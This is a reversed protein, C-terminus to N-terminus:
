VTPVVLVLRALPVPCCAALSPRAPSVSHAHGQQRISAMALPVNPANAPKRTAPSVTPVVLVRRAHLAHATAMVSHPALASLAPALDATWGMDLRANPANATLSQAHSVVVAASVLLAHKVSWNGLVSHTGSASHAHGASARSATDLRANPASAM